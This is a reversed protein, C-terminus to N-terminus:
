QVDILYGSLSATIQGTESYYDRRFIVRLTTGADAYSRMQSSAVYVANVNQNIDVTFNAFGGRFVYDTTVGGTTTQLGASIRRFDNANFLVYEASVQEVVLRKGQPVTAVDLLQEFGGSLFADSATATFAHRAANDVNKTPVPQSPANVVNVNPTNVVNVNSPSPPTPVAQAKPSLGFCALVVVIVIPLTITKFKISPKM